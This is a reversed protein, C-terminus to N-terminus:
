IKSKLEFKREEKARDVLARRLVKGAPSRPIEEIFRIGGRLWKYPATREQVWRNIEEKKPKHGESPVIYARPLETAKEEAYIGIVAVDIVADHQLLIAEIQAPAIQFGNYKILEKVRGTIYINNDEDIYGVDGTRYWGSPDIAEATAIPNKYYGKFINPGSLWLEGECNSAVEADGNMFKIAMSPLLRGVSGIPKDLSVLEPCGNAVLTELHSLSAHKPHLQLLHRRYDTGRSSLCM